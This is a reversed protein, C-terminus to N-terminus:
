CHSSQTSVYQPECPTNVTWINYYVRDFHVFDDFLLIYMKMTM